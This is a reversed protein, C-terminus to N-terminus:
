ACVVGPLDLWMRFLVDDDEDGPYNANRWTLYEEWQEQHIEEEHESWRRGIAEEQRTAAEAELEIRRDLQDLSTNRVDGHAQDATHRTSM